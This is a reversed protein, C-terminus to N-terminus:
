DEIYNSPIIIEKRWMVLLILGILNSNALCVAYPTLHDVFLGSLLAGLSYGIAVVSFRIGETINQESSLVLKATISLLPTRLVVFAFSYEIVMICYFVVRLSGSSHDFAWLCICAIFETVLGALILNYDTIIRNFIYILASFTIFIVGALVFTISVWVMSWKLVNTALLSLLTEFALIHVGTTFSVYFLVLLVSRRLLEIIKSIGNRLFSANSFDAENENPRTENFQPDSFTAEMQIKRGHEKLDYEKSLDHVFMFAFIQVLALMVSIILPGANKYTIHWYGLYINFDKFIINLGPAVLWGISGGTNYIAIISTLDKENYSRALEGTAVTNCALGLGAFFRGIVVPYSSFGLSYVVGGIIVSSMIVSMISRINRTDDAIKGFVISGLLGSITYLGFALGYLINRNHADIEALYFYLTPLIIGYDLGILILQIIFVILTQKRKIKWNALDKLSEHKSEEGQHEEPSTKEERLPLEEYYM